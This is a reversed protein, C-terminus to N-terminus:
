KRSRPDATVDWSRLLARLVDLQETNGQQLVQALSLVIELERPRLGEALELLPLLAPPVRRLDAAPVAVFDVILVKRYITALVELTQLDPKRRGAEYHGLAAVSLGARDAIVKSTLGSLRRLQRLKLGLDLYIDTEIEPPM